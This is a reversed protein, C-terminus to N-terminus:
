KPDRVGDVVRYIRLKGPKEEVLRFYPSDAFPDRRWAADSSTVVIVRCRYQTALDRVDRPAADGAFVREFLANIRDIEPEPLPVFARALNWGAYCSRRDALLAWSINVPWRVSDALFLPNNAVREDPASRRRVAAWLAPSEALSKASPAPLGVANEKMIQLGGPIGLGWFAVAATALIPSTVPWRALGAAGFVTLVLVGPLV